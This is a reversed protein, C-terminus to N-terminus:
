PRTEELLPPLRQLTAEDFDPGIRLRRGNALLLEIGASSSTTQQPPLLVQVPLFAPMQADRQALTRRWAYFHQPDLQHRQCFAVVSLDSDQWLKLLRRWFQEKALDRPKGTPM